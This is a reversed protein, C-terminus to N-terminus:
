FMYNICTNKPHKGYTLTEHNLCKFLLTTAIHM